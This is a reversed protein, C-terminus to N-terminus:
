SWVVEGDAEIGSTQCCRRTWRMGCEVDTVIAIRGEHSAPRSCDRIRHRAFRSAFYKESLSQVPPILNFPLTFNTKLRLACDLTM